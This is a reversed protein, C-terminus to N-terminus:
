DTLELAQRIDQLVAEEKETLTQDALAIREAIKLAARRDKKDPILKALAKMAGDEDAGLICSQQRIMQKFEPDKLVKLRADTAIVDSYARLVRRHLTEEAHAIKLMIRVIGEAFGGVDVAELWQPDCINEEEPVASVPKFFSQVLPNGYLAKFWFEQTQDRMDRYLNLSDTIWRATSKELAVFPNDPSVPKRNEEVLPAVHRLPMMLPNADSFATVAVRLPHLQRIL